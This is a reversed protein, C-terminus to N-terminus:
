DSIFVYRQYVSFNKLFNFFLTLLFFYSNIKKIPFLFMDKFFFTLYYLLFISLTTFYFSQFVLPFKTFYFLNFLTVLLFSQFVLLLLISFSVLERPFFLIRFYFSQFHSNKIHFSILLIISFWFLLSYVLWTYSAHSTLISLML